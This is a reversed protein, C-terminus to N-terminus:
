TTKDDKNDTDENADDVCNHDAAVEWVWVLKGVSFDGLACFDIVSGSLHEEIFYERVLLARNNLIVLNWFLEDIAHYRCFIFFEEFMVSDSRQTNQACHNIAHECFSSYFARGCKGLLEDFICNQCVLSTDISFEFLKNERKTEFLFIRFFLNEFNIKVMLRKLKLEKYVILSALIFM